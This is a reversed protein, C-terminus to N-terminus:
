SDGWVLLTFLGSVFTDVVVAIRVGIWSCGSFIERWPSLDWMVFSGLVAVITTCLLLVAPLVAMFFLWVQWFRIPKNAPVDIEESM